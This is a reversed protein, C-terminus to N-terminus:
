PPVCDDAEKESGFHQAAAYMSREIRGSVSSHIKEVPSCGSWMLEPEVFSLVTACPNQGSHLFATREIRSWREVSRVGGIRASLWGANSRACWCSFSNGVGPGSPVYGDEGPIYM